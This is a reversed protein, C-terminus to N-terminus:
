RYPTFQMRAMVGDPLPVAEGRRRRVLTMNCVPCRSPWDSLIGPDMPCFYETDSSIASESGGSRTLRSWYMRITEWSGIVAFVAAFVVLFRLRAVVIRFAGSARRRHIAPVVVSPAALDPGETPTSM